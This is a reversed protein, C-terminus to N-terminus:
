RGNIAIAILLGFIRICRAHFQQYREQKSTMNDKEAWHKDPAYDWEIEEAAIYYTRVTGYHSGDPALKHCSKINYM